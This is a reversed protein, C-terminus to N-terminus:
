SDKGTHPQFLTIIQKQTLTNSHAQALHGTFTSSFQQDKSGM